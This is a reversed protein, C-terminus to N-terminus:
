ITRLAWQSHSLVHVSRPEKCSFTWAMKSLDQSPPPVQPPPSYAPMRLIFLPQSSHCVICSSHFLGHPHRDPAPFKVLYTTGPRTHPSTHANTHPSHLEHPAATINYLRLSPSSLVFSTRLTLFVFTQFCSPTTFSPMRASM